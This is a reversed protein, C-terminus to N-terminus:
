DDEDEGTSIDVDEPTKPIEEAPFFNTINVMNAIKTAFGKVSDLYGSVVAPELSGPIGTGLRWAEAEPYHYLMLGLTTKSGGRATSRLREDYVSVAEELAEPIHAAETFEKKKDRFFKIIFAKAAMRLRLYFASFEKLKDLRTEATDDQGSSFLFASIFIRSFALSDLFLVFDSTALFSLKGLIEHDLITVEELRRDLATTLDSIVKADKEAQASSNAELDRLAKQVAKLDERLKQNEKNLQLNEERLSSANGSEALTKKAEALAALFRPHSFFFVRILFASLAHM